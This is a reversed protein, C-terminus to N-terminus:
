TASKVAQLFAEIMVNSKKGPSNEVGSSIDLAQADSEEIAQQANEASLGGALMWRYPLEQGKLINWPFSVANGGPLVAGKPPKADFLIRDAIGTFPDAKKLDELTSVGFAKIIRVGFKEKIRKADEPTESGHLQVVDLSLANIAQGLLEDSANVFVGVKKPGSPLKPGLSRAAEITLNRPSKEFFVFGLWRAGAHAATKAHEAETIGCIKVDATM